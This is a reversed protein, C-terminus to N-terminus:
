RAAGSFIPSNSLAAPIRRRAEHPERVCLGPMLWYIPNRVDRKDVTSLIYRARDDNAALRESATGKDNYGFNRRDPPRELKRQKLPTTKEGSQSKSPIRRSAETAIAYIDRQLPAAKAAGDLLLLFVPKLGQPYQQGPPWELKRQKLPTTRDGSQSKSAIRRSAEVPFWALCSVEGTGNDSTGLRRKRM